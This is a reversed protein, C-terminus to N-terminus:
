PQVWFDVVVLDSGEEPTDRFHDIMVHIQDTGREFVLFPKSEALTWGDDSMVAVVWDNDLDARENSVIKPGHCRGDTRGSAAFPGWRSGLTSYVDGLLDIDEGSCSRTDAEAQATAAAEAQSRTDDGPQSIAAAEAQAHVAAEAQRRGLESVGAMAAQILPFSAALVVVTATKSLTRGTATRM